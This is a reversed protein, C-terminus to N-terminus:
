KQDYRKEIPTKELGGMPGSTVHDTGPTENTGGGGGVGGDRM